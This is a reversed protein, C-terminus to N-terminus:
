GLRSGNVVLRDPGILVVEGPAGYVGLVLCESKFGAVRKPPFNVVALVQRGTIDEARYLTRLQASSKKVGLEDGFDITLVFSPVRPQDFPECALVTGVRIDLAEFQEWSAESM